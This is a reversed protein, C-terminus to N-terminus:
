TLRMFCENGVLRYLAKPNFRFPKGVADSALTVHSAGIVGMRGNGDSYPLALREGTGIMAALHFVEGETFSCTPVSTVKEIRKRINMAEPPPYLDNPTSGRINRSIVELIKEGVLRIRPEGYEDLRWAWIQPLVPGIEEPKIDSWKPMQRSGRITQWYDFLQILVASRLKARFEGEAMM